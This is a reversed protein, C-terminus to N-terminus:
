RATFGGGSPRRENGPVAMAPIRPLSVPASSIPNKLESARAKLTHVREAFGPFDGQEAEFLLQQQALSRYESITKKIFQAKGGYEGDSMMQYMGSMPSKGAVTADLFDKAGMKFAPHKVENGALRAYREYAEPYERFTVPLGMFSDGKAIREVGMGLRAMENDIPSEIHKTAKFPVAWDYMAGYVEAPQRDKGWLDVAAPLSDSFGPIRSMISDWISNVDRQKPDILPKLSAALGVGPASQALGGAMSEAFAAVGSGKTNKADEVASILKAMGQMFSQDIVSMAVAGAAHGIIEEVTDYSDPDLEKRRLTEAMNASFALAPALQGLGSIGFFQDGIRVANPQWGARELAEKEGKSKPGPGTLIGNSALDFMVSLMMSGTAIKALAMDRAVGGAAVDTHWQKLVPALPSHEVAVRFLNAPTKVFPMVIFTPNLTGANRARMVASAWEGPKNQFTAYLAKDLADLKLTEPPNAILEAVRGQFQAGSLGERSAQRIALANMQGSFNVIKFFDDEAGLAVGPLRVFGGIYDIAKGFGSEAFDKARSADMGLEAAVRGSSLAAMRDDLPSASRVTSLTAAAPDNAIDKGLMSKAALRFADKVGSIQGQMMALAEGDMVRDDIATGLVRGIKAATHTDWATQAAMATNGVINRIHTTPRWLLGLTYAEKLVDNTFGMSGRKIAANMAGDPVGLDDLGTIMKALAKAAPSGGTSQHFEKIMQSQRLADGQLATKLANLARGAEARAGLFKELIAGNLMFQQRLATEDAFSSTPQEAIRALRVLENRSAKLLQGAAILQEANGAQGIPTNLLAEPTLSLADAMEKSASLTISGRRAVDIRDKFGVAIDSIVQDIDADSGMKAFNINFGLEPAVKAGTGAAMMTDNVAESANIGKALVTGPVGPDLPGGPQQAATVAAGKVPATKLPAPILQVLPKDGGSIQQAVAQAGQQERLAAQEGAAVQEPTMGATAGKAARGAAWARLGKLVGETAAGFGAAEIAHRARNLLKGDNPDTALPELLPGLGPIGMLLNAMGAQDPDQGLFSSIAGAGSAGAIGGVGGAKLTSQAPGFGTIFKSAERIFHGTNSKPDGGLWGGTMGKLSFEENGTLAKLQKRQDREKDDTAQDHLFSPGHKEMWDSFEGVSSVANRIFDFKGEFWQPVSEAAGVGLDGVTRGVAGLGKVIPNSPDLPTTWINKGDEPPKTAEKDAPATSAQPEAPPQNSFLWEKAAQAARGENRQAYVQDLNDTM